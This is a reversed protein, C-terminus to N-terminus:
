FPWMHAHVPISICVYRYMCVGVCVPRTRLVGIRLASGPLLIHAYSCVHLVCECLYVPAHECM